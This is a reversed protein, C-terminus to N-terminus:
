NGPTLGATNERNRSVTPVKEAVYRFQGAAALDRGSGRDVERDTRRVAGSEAGDAQAVSLDGVNGRRVSRRYRYAIGVGRVALTGGVLEHVGRGAVEVNREGRAVDARADIRDDDLRSAPIKRAASEGVEARRDHTRRGFRSGISPIGARQA